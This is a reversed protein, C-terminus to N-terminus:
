VFNFKSFAQNKAKNKNNHQTVLFYNNKVLLSIINLIEKLM